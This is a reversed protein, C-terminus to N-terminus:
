YIACIKAAKYNRVKRKVTVLVNSGSYKRQWTKKGIEQPFGCPESIVLFEGQKCFELDPVRFGNRREEDEWRRGEEMRDTADCGQRPYSHPQLASSKHNNKGRHHWGWPFLIVSLGLLKEITRISMVMFIQPKKSNWIKTMQFLLHWFILCYVYNIAMILRHVMAWLGISGHVMAWLGMSWPEFAWPGMVISGFGWLGHACPRQSM